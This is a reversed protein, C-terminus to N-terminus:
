QKVNLNTYLFTKNKFKNMKEYSAISNLV